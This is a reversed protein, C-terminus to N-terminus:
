QNLKNLLYLGTVNDLEEQTLKPLSHKRLFEGM